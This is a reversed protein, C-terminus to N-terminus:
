LFDSRIEHVNKSTNPSPYYNTQGHMEALERVRILIPAPIPMSAHKRSDKVGKSSPVQSFSARLLNRWKDKLDVSTRYAYSSFALRKIESWRGAGYRSVGEVLKVVESLTWARHHKRRTGGNATPVTAVNEDSTDDGSSDANEMEVTEQHGSIDVDMQKELKNDSSPQIQKGSQLTETEGDQRSIQMGLAEKVVEAAIGSPQYKMLAMFNQRPRGRRVRSVYPVQVGSGGLSDNRTVFMKGSSFTGQLHGIHFRQSDQNHRCSKGSSGSRGSCDRAEVESLEEIYRKTPKRVRKAATQVEHLENKSDEIETRPKKLGNSSSVQCEQIQNSPRVPMDTCGKNTDGVANSSGDLEEGVEKRILTKGKIIFNTTPVDYSNTLGMAIRRKLWLKDNVSTTRGFTMKFTEQLERISLNDLCIEGETTSIDSNYSSCDNLLVSRTVPEDTSVAVMETVGLEVNNTDKLRANPVSDQVANEEKFTGNRYPEQEHKDLIMEEMSIFKSVHDLGGCSLRLREEQKVRQLMEEIYEIRANLKESDAGM